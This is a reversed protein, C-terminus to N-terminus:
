RKRRNLYTVEVLPIAANLGQDIDTDIYLPLLQKRQEPRVAGALGSQQVDEAAKELGIAASHADSPEVNEHL